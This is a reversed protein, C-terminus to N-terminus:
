YIIMIDIYVAFPIEQSIIDLCIFEEQLLVSVIFMQIYIYPSLVCFGRMNMLFCSVTRVNCNAGKLLQFLQCYPETHVVFLTASHKLDYSPNLM